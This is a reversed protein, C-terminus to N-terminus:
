GPPVFFRKEFNPDGDVMQKYDMYKANASSLMKKIEEPDNAKEFFTLLLFKRCSYWFHLRVCSKIISSKAAWSGTRM